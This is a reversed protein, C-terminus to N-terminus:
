ALLRTYAFVLYAFARKNKKQIFIFRDSYTLGQGLGGFLFGQIVM